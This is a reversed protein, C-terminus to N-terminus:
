QTQFHGQTANTSLDGSLIELLQGHMIKCAMNQSPLTYSGAITYKMMLWVNHKMYVIIVVVNNSIRIWMCVM